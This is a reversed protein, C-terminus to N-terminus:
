KFNLQLKFGAAFTESEVSPMIQPQLVLQTRNNDRDLLVPFGKQSDYITYLYGGVLATAGLTILLNNRSIKSQQDALRQYDSWRNQYENNINEISNPGEILDSISRAPDPLEAKLNNFTNADSNNKSILYVMSGAVAAAAGFHILGKRREGKYYHGWGPLIASRIMATRQSLERPIEFHDPYTVSSQGLEGSRNFYMKQLRMSGREQSVYSIHTTEGDFVVDMHENQSTRSINRARNEVGQNIVGRNIPYVRIPNNLDQDARIVFLVETSGDSDRITTIPFGTRMETGRSVNSAFQRSTRGTISSLGDIESNGPNNGSWLVELVKVDWQGEIYSEILYSIYRGSESWRPKFRGDAPAGTALILEQINRISNRGDTDSGSKLDMLFINANEQDQPNNYEYALYRGDPSWEAFFAHSTLHVTDFTEFEKKRLQNYLQNSKVLDRGDNFIIHQGNPSWKPRFINNSSRYVSFLDCEYDTEEGCREDNNVFGFNLSKNDMQVYTFWYNGNQDLVPRWDFEVCNNGDRSLEKTDTPQDFLGGLDFDDSDYDECEIEMIINNNNSKDVIRINGRYEFAVLKPNIPNIRPHRHHADPGNFNRIDSGQLTPAETNSILTLGNKDKNRFDIESKEFQEAVATSNIIIFLISLQILFKTM